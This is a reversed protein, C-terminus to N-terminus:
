RRWSYPVPGDHPQRDERGLDEPHPGLVERDEVLVGVGPRPVHPRRPGLRGEVVAPGDDLGGLFHALLQEFPPRSSSAAGSSRSSNAPSTLTLPEGSLATVIAWRAPVPPAIRPCPDPSTGSDGSTSAANQRAPESKLREERGLEDGVGDPDLQVPASSDDPDELRPQRVVRAHDDVRDPGVPLDISAHQHPDALRQRLGGPEVLIPALAVRVGRSCAASWSRHGELRSRQISTSVGLAPGLPEFPTPSGGLTGVEPAIPLAM